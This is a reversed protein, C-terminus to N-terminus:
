GRGKVSRQARDPAGAMTSLLYSFTRFLTFSRFVVSGQFGEALSVGDFSLPTFSGAIRRYSLM